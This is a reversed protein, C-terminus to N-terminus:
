PAQLLTDILESHNEIDERSNAIFCNPDYMPKRCSISQKIKDIDNVSDEKAYEGTYEIIIYSKM